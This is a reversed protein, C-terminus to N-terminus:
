SSDLAPAAEMRGVIVDLGLVDYVARRVGFRKWTRVVVVNM